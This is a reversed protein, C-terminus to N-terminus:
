EALEKMRNRCWKIDSLPLNTKTFLVIEPCENKREQFERGTMETLHHM